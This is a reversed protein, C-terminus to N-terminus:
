IANELFFEILNFCRQIERQSVSNYGLNQECFEQARLISDALTNQVYSELPITNENNKSSTVQFMAIKRVIYDALTKSELPGYSVKLDKLSQPLDHVIYDSRHVQVTNEEIKILPNIAATFFINKPINIGHLTGDMFMEKFLSLCSATNVEDFFIVIEIQPLEQALQSIPLMFEVLQEETIGPNLLLRYFLPKIQSHFLYEKFIEISIEITPSCIEQLLNKLRSSSEILPYNALENNIYDYLKQILITTSGMPNENSVNLIIKWILYLINKKLQYKTLFLKVQKLLINDVPIINQEQEEVLQIPLPTSQQNLLEDDNELDLIKPKIRQLFISLLNPQTEIINLLFQSSNE